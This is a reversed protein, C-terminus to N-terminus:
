PKGILVGDYYIKAKNCLTGNASASRLYRFRVTGLSDFDSSNVVREVKGDEFTVGGTAIHFAISLHPILPSLHYEAEYVQTHEDIDALRSLPSSPPALLEVGQVMSSALIPGKKGLRAVVYRPESSVNSIRFSRANPDDVLAAAGKIKNREELSLRRFGIRPDAQVVVTPPLNTCDWHPKTKFVAVVPDLTADVVNV